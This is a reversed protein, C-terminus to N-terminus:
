VVIIEGVVKDWILRDGIIQEEHGLPQNDDWTIIIEKCESRVSHKGPSAIWIPAAWKALEIPRGEGDRVTYTYLVKGGYVSIINNLLGPLFAANDNVWGSGISLPVGVIENMGTIPEKAYQPITPSYGFIAPFSGSRESATVLVMWDGYQVWNPDREEMLETGILNDQKDYYDRYLKYGVWYYKFRYVPIGRYIISEGGANGDPYGGFFNGVSVQHISVWNWRAGDVWTKINYNKGAQLNVKQTLVFLENARVIKPEFGIYPDAGPPTPPVGFLLEEPSVITPASPSEPTMSPKKSMAYAICVGAAALLLVGVNNNSQAM